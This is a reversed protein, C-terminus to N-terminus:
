SNGEQVRPITQIWKFHISSSSYTGESKEGDKGAVKGTWMDEKERCFLPLRKGVSAPCPAWHSSLGGLAPLLTLSLAQEWQESDWM